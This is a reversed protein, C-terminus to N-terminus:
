IITSGHLHSHSSLVRHTQIIAAQNCRSPAKDTASHRIPTSAVWLPMHCQKGCVAAHGVPLTCSYVVYRLQVRSYSTSAAHWSSDLSFSRDVSCSRVAPAADSSGLKQLVVGLQLLADLELFFFLNQTRAPPALASRLLETQSALQLHLAELRSEM